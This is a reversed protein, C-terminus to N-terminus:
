PSILTFLNNKWLMDKSCILLYTIYSMERVFWMIDIYLTSWVHWGGNRYIHRVHWWPINWTKNGSPVTVNWPLFPVVVIVDISFCIRMKYHNKLEFSVVAIFYIGSFHSRRLIWECGLRSAVLFFPVYPWRLIYHIHRNSETWQWCAVNQLSCNCPRM